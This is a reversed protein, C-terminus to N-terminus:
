ILLEVASTTFHLVADLLLHAQEGIPERGVFHLAILEPQVEGSQGVRQNLRESPQCQFAGLPHLCLTSVTRRLSNLIPAMTRM